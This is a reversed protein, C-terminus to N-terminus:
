MEQCVQSVKENYFDAHMDFHYINDTFEFHSVHICCQCCLGAGKESVHINFLSCSGSTAAKSFIAALSTMCTLSIWSVSCIAYVTRNYKEKDFSQITIAIFTSLFAICALSMQASISSMAGLIRCYISKRWIKENLVYNTQHFIDLIAIQILYVPMLIDSMALNLIIVNHMNPKYRLLSMRYFIVIVNTSFSMCIIIWISIKLSTQGLLGSCMSRTVTPADCQLLTKALCCISWHDGGIYTMHDLLPLLALCTISVDDNGKIDLVMLSSLAQLMQLEIQSLRNSSLNMAKLKPLNSFSNIEITLLQMGNLNLIEINLLGNFAGNKLVQLPNNDLLLVKLASLGKFTNEHICQILNDRLDFTYLSRQSLFASDDGYPLLTIGNTKLELRVLKPCVSLSEYSVSINNNNGLFSVLGPSNFPLNPMMSNSCNMTTQICSCNEPCSGIDCFLEDDEDPCQRIGDCVYNHSVCIGSKCRLSGPCSIPLSCNIEDEGMFCDSVGNCLKHLPLCYLNPCKFMGPCDFQNCHLLHMGNRCYSLSGDEEHDVVCLKEQPFCRPLGYVCNLYSKEQCKGSDEISLWNTTLIKKYSAEDEGDFCDPIMDNMKKLEVEKGDNCIFSSDAGVTHEELQDEKMGNFVRHLSTSILQQLSICGGSEMPVHLLGCECDEKKCTYPSCLEERQYIDDIKCVAGCDNEDEGNACDFTGDCLLQQSIYTQDHCLFHIHAYRWHRGSMNHLPKRMCLIHQVESSSLLGEGLWIDDTSSPPKLISFTNIYVMLVFAVNNHMKLKNLFTNISIISVNHIWMDGRDYISSNHKICENRIKRIQKYKKGQTPVLMLCHSVFAFWTDHGCHHSPLLISTDSKVIEVLKDGQKRSTKLQTCVLQVPSVSENCPIM